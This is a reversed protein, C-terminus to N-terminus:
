FLTGGFIGGGHNAADFDMELARQKRQTPTAIKHAGRSGKRLLGDRPLLPLISKQVQLVKHIPDFVRAIGVAGDGCALPTFFQCLVTRHHFEQKSDSFGVVCIPQRVM